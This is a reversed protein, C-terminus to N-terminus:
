TSGDAPNTGVDNTSQLASESQIIVFWKVRETFDVIYSYIKISVKDHLTLSFTTMLCTSLRAVITYIRTNSKKYPLM